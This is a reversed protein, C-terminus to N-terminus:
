VVTLPSEGVLLLYLDLSFLRTRMSSNLYLLKKKKKLSCSIETGLVFGFNSIKKGGVEGM